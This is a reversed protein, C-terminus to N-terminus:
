IHDEQPSPDIYWQYTGKDKTEDELIKTHPMLERLNKTKTEEPQHNKPWSFICV